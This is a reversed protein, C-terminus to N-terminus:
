HWAIVSVSVVKEKKVRMRGERRRKDQPLMVIDTDTMHQFGLECVDSQQREVNNEDISKFSRMACVM